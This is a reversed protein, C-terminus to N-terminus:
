VNCFNHVVTLNCLEDSNCGDLFSLQYRAYQNALFDVAAKNQAAEKFVPADEMSPKDSGLSVRIIRKRVPEAELSHDEVLGSALNTADVNHCGGAPEYTGDELFADQEPSTAMDSFVHQMKDKVSPMLHEVEGFEAGTLLKYFLEVPLLVNKNKLAGFVQAPDEKSLLGLTHDDMDQFGSPKSFAISVAKVPHDSPMAEIEKEIEALKKLLGLRQSANKSLNQQIIGVPVSLGVMEALDASCIVSDSAVKRLGFAIKDAPRFVQSIDHFMPTDNIAYCQYGHKDMMLMANKLHGCYNRRTKAQNGCFSCTDYPVSCGMSFYLGGDGSALKQIDKEWSDTPVEIILEGRHMDQNYASKVIHGEAKGGKTRNVHNRYVAGEKLFSKDHHKVLGGDLTITKHRGGEKPYPIVFDATKENFYDGNNNASYTEGAGTTILHIYSHGPKVELNAVDNDFLAAAKNFQSKDFGKSFTNLLSITPFKFDFSSPVILKPIM